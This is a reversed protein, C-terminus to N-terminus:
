IATSGTRTTGNRARTRKNAETMWRVAARYNGSSVSIARGTGKGARYNWKPASPSTDFWLYRYRSRQWTDLYLKYYGQKDREAQMSM